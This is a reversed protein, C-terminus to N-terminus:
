GAKTFLFSDATYLQFTTPNKTERNLHGDKLNPKIQFLRNQPNSKWLQQWKGCIHKNVMVKIDTNLNDDIAM